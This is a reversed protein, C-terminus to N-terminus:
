EEIMVSSLSNIIDRAMLSYLGKSESEIDGSLGHIYVGFCAAIYPNLGQAILGGIVGTLVDGSGATAMGNNGTTNIFVEENSNAVITRADKLVCIVDYNLCLKLAKNILDRTVEETTTNILRAMEGPHPTLIIPQECGELLKFNNSLVNLGDADIIVPVTAYKLTCKLLELTKNDQGLGPGIIIVDSWSISDTINNYCEKKIDGEIVDYTKLIAEPLSTQLIQRNKSDTLIKVLGAGTRYAAFASLYAAGSMNESGAIILVKGYTGKNSRQERKPLFKKYDSNNLVFRNALVNDIAEKPFGIDVVRVEGAFSAGPYLILGIKPLGFTVTIEAKISVGLIQGNNASIGSPIDVSITLKNSENIYEIITKYYGEIDRSLGTGFIADVIIDAKDIKEIYQEKEYVPINLKKIIEMQALTEKSLKEQNGLLLVEVKINECNLIRAIALGDGGNNGIGCVILVQQNKINPCELIAEVVSLAAREMLVLSPIGIQNITYSDIQAMEKGTVVKLIDIM